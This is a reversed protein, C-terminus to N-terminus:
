LMRSIFPLLHYMGKRQLTNLLSLVDSIKTYLKILMSSNFPFWLCTINASLNKLKHKPPSNWSLTLEQEPAKEQYRVYTTDRLNCQHYSLWLGQSHVVFLFSNLYHLLRALNLKDTRDTRWQKSWLSYHTKCKIKLYYNM